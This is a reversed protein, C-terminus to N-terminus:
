LFHFLFLAFPFLSSFCRRQPGRLSFPSFFIPPEREKGKRQASFFPQLRKPSHDDRLCGTNCNIAHTRENTRVPRPGNKKRRVHPSSTTCHSLCHALPHVTRSVFFSLFDFSCALLPTPCFFLNPCARVCQAYSKHPTQRSTPM